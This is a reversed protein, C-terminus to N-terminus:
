VVLIQHVVAVAMFAVAIPILDSAPKGGTAGDIFQKILQPNVLQLAIAVLMVGALLVAKPRHPRLYGSFLKFYARVPIM